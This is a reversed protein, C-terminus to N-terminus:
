GTASWLLIGSLSSHSHIKHDGLFQPSTSCISDYNPCPKRRDRRSFSEQANVISCKMDLIICSFPQIM